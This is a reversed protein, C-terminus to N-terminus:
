TKNNDKQINHLESYKGKKSLLQKHNGSEVIRGNDIVYIIDADQITSLRHAIVFTTCDKSVSNIAKQVIRESINDLSSTAEDLILIEPKRIMARAIAIRQKEGGSIKVGQDGVTTNYKEPQQQIFDDINALKAAEIVEQVTYKGGFAINDKISGNHIFTEQSVFGVRSLFSFIDYEKINTDDIFVGGSDVDHLRLLLNVVTSKGSGSPGVLATIKNKKIELTVDNLIIAREKHTFKVNRMEISSNLGKFKKDGNKIQCYTTDKLLEYVAEVNPLVSMFNMRYQGFVSIKPVIIFLAFGFTGILPITNHFSGPANIKISIVAGGICIYLLFILLVEPVRSWFVGKRHYKWYTHIANDFQDKWYNYTNFVKIQKVGTTYENIVVTETQGSELKRKGVMYSVRKSLYKTLYYYAIGGIIVISTAKWSMSLLLTFVSVSLVLEVLINSISTLLTAIDTPAISTKYLIEGQKNDIFFQYDLNMCKNFVRQKADIVISATLKESFYFYFLKGILVIFALIIFLLSYVVLADEIPILKAFINIFDLFPNSTTEIGLGGALIPYILAVNLSELIGIFISLTMLFIFQITKQKMFFWVIKLVNNENKM